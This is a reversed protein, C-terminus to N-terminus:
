KEKLLKPIKEHTVSDMRQTYSSVIRAYFDETTPFLRLQTPIDMDRDRSLSNLLNMYREQPSNSTIPYRSANEAVWSFFSPSAPRAGEFKTPEFDISNHPIKNSVGLAIKDKDLVNRRAQESLKPVESEIALIRKYASTARAPTVGIKSMFRTGFTTIIKSQQQAYEAALAILISHGTPDSSNIPDGVCYTYANLGGKGFPSLSDPSNFRM